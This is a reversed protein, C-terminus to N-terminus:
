APTLTKRRRREARAASCRDALFRTDHDRQNSLNRKGLDAILDELLDDSYTRVIAAHTGPAPPAEPTTTLGARAAQAATIRIPM